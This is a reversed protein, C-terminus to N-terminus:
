GQVTMFAYFLPLTAGNIRLKAKLPFKNCKKHLIVSDM